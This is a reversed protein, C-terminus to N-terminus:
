SAARSLYPPSVGRSQQQERQAHTDDTKNITTIWDTGVGDSRFSHNGDEDLSMVAVHSGAPIM